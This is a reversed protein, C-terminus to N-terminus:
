VAYAIGMAARVLRASGAVEALTACTFSYDCLEDAVGGESAHTDTAQPADMRKLDVVVGGLERIYEAENNFRVDDFTIIPKREWDRTCSYKALRRDVAYLWVQKHVGNRGLETGFIQLIVRGTIERVGYRQSWEDILIPHWFPDIAAKEEQSEYRSGFIAEVADRLADAFAMRVSARGETVNRAFTSKGSGKRGTIGIVPIDCQRYISRISM